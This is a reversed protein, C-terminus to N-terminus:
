ACRTVADSFNPHRDTADIQGPDHDLPLLVRFLTGEGPDSSVQIDGGHKRVIAYSISLGLGTGEGVEKTTFFPNFIANLHDPAIGAGDDEVEVVVFNGDVYSRISIFGREGCAQGANVILNLFVQNIQGANCVIDPIDGFDTEITHHYRFQNAAIRLTARLGDNINAARAADADLRSFNSLGVVIESVKDAGELSDGIMEQMEGLLYRRDDAALEHDLMALSANLFNPTGPRCRRVFREYARITESVKEVSKQLSGLNSSIFAIPNNIEHAIGAALQGVSAMKEAQVAQAKALKLQEHAAELNELQSEIRKNAQYLERSRTELISEAQLRAQRERRYAREFSPLREAAMMM